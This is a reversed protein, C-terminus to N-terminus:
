GLGLRALRRVNLGHLLLAAVAWLAVSAFLSWPLLRGEGDLWPAVVLVVTEGLAWGDVSLRALVPALVFLVCGGVTSTWVRSPQGVRLGVSQAYIALVALVVVFWLVWSGLLAFAGVTNVVTGVMEEASILAFVMGLGLAPSAFLLLAALKGRLVGAPGLRTSVLLPLTGTRLEEAMSAASGLVAVALVLCFCVVAGFGAFIPVVRSTMFTPLLVLIGLLVYLRSLSKRLGGWARTNLERWLVPNDWVERGSPLRRSRAVQDSPRPPRGSVSRRGAVAPVGTVAPPEGWAAVESGVDALPVPVGAIPGGAGPTWSRPGRGPPGDAHSVPEWQRSLEKWSKLPTKRAKRQRRAQLARVVLAYVGTGVVLWGTTWVAAALGLGPTGQPVWAVVAVWVPAAAVLAVFGLWLIQRAKKLGAFDQSLSGFGGVPDDANAIRARLSVSTLAVMGAAFLSATLTTGVILLGQAQVLAASPSLWSAGSPERVLAAILWPLIGWAGATWLWVSFAVPLAARADVALAASLSGTAIIAATCQLGINTVQQPSFGGLSGALAILPLGALVILELQVFRALLKGLVIRTPSLRTIALLSLTRGSAEDIFSQAVVLPTVLTISWLLVQGYVTSLVRGLETLKQRDVTESGQVSSAWFAAVTVLLVGALGARQGHVQWRRSTSTLERATVALPSPRARM